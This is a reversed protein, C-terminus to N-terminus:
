VDVVIQILTGVARCPDATFIQGVQAYSGQTDRRPMVISARLVVSPLLLRSPYRKIANRSGDRRFVLIGCGGDRYRSLSGFLRKHFKQFERFCCIISQLRFLPMWSPLCSCGSRIINGVRIPRGPVRAKNCCCVWGPPYAGCCDTCFLAFLRKCNSVFRFQEVSCNM